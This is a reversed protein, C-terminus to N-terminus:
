EESREHRELTEDTPGYGFSLFGEGPETLTPQGDEDEPGLPIQFLEFGLSHVLELYARRMAPHVMVVEVEDRELFRREFANRPEVTM